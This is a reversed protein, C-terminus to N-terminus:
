AMQIITQMITSETSITKANAQYNSQAKILNVLEGTLDVNSDELAGGSIQGLTGTDPAGIVPVGSAYSEQWSTGGIPTLGQLNAFNAIAVQGIVKDQGNTFNAFMNGSQDITLGSLEGTAFGDQSKATTASAANYQTTGLMDLNVGALNATAGNPSWVGAANKQAPIWNGLTFTKDAAITMGGAVPGATMAATDLTGDSKFPLKNTLPTTLTPDAPNRGDITTYMTWSNSSADKVFYQNLQHANGQSDYVDTNFTYNYSGTNTPDFPTVAPATASSNLNVNESIKGTPNPTLNSTDIQLNTLVGQMIKGNADVAYGQLNAGSSNVVYGDKDSYFAGARTYIKSGGDSMVFFGNGDIAMDLAQGTGNINGPSFMQSVAATKVGTGVVTKGASTGRISNSYQDAFEARSSKFGTTAVNAINNGTVNLAKNAAYLGSLGTNFSM